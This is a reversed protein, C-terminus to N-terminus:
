FRKQKKLAIDYFFWRQDNSIIRSFLRLNVFPSTPNQQAPRLVNLICAVAEGEQLLKPRAQDDGM